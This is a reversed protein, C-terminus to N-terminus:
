ASVMMVVGAASRMNAPMEPVAIYEVEPQFTGSLTGGTPATTVAAIIQQGPLVVHPSIDKYLRRGASTADILRVTGLAVRGTDSNYTVRKYFTVIGEVTQVNYGLTALVLIQLRTVAIPSGPSWLASAINGAGLALMAIATAWGTDNMGTHLILKDSQGENAM